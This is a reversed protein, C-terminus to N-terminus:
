KIIEEEILYEIKCIRRNNIITTTVIVIVKNKIKELYM